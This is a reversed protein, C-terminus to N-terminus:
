GPCLILTVPLAGAGLFVVWDVLFFAVVFLVLLLVLELLLLVVALFYTGFFLEDTLHLQGAFPLTM